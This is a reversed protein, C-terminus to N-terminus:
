PVDAVIAAVGRAARNAACRPGYVRACLSTLIQRVDGAVDDDVGCPDVVLM